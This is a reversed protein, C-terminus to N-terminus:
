DEKDTEEAHVVPNIEYTEIEQEESSNEEYYQIYECANFDFTKTTNDKFYVIAQMNELCSWGEYSNTFNPGEDSTSYKDTFSPDDYVYVIKSVLNQIEDSIVFGFTYYNREERIEEKYAYIEFNDDSITKNVVLKVEQPDYVRPLPIGNVDTKTKTDRITIPDNVKIPDNVVIPDNVIIPDVKKTPVVYDKQVVYAEAIMAKFSEYDVWIYGKAGWNTGYSNLIKFASKKNDYGVLLMAHLGDKDNSPKRKYIDNESKNYYNSFADDTYVAIIVPIDQKLFSKLENFNKFDEVRFWDKIKNQSAKTKLSSSPMVCSNADYPCDVISVVGTNKLFNLADSIYTGCTCDACPSGAKINQYIYSPSLVNKQEKVNKSFKCGAYFSMFGYGTAWATCSSQQGQNGPTPFFDPSIVYSEPLAATKATSSSGALKPPSKLKNYSEVPMLTLGQGFLQTFSLFFLIGFLSKTKLM